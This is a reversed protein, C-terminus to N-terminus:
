GSYSQARGKAENTIETKLLSWGQKYKTYSIAEQNLAVLNSNTEQKERNSFLKNKIKGYEIKKMESCKLEVCDKFELVKLM